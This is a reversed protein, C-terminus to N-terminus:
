MQSRKTNDIDPVPVEDGRRGERHFIRVLGCRGRVKRSMRGFPRLLLAKRKVEPRGRLSVKDAEAPALAKGLANAPRHM